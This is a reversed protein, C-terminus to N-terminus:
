VEQRRNFGQSEGVVCAVNKARSDTDNSFFCNNNNNNKKLKDNVVLFFIIGYYYYNFFFIIIIFFLLFLITTIIIIRGEATRYFMIIPSIVTHFTIPVTADSVWCFSLIFEIFSVVFFCYIFQFYYYSTSYM